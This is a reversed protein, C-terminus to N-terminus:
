IDKDVSVQMIRDIQLHVLHLTMWIQFVASLKFKSRDARVLIADRMSHVKLFNILIATIFGHFHSFCTRIKKTM